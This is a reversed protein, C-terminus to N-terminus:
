RAASFKAEAYRLFADPGPDSGTAARILEAPRLRRGHRHVKERLWDRLPVLEGRGIAADLDGLDAAAKEHLQAAYLNGLTYTPFYGFAGMAWHIDQLVGEADNTPRIGLLRQMGDNWAAPLDAIALTGAFLDRELEFRLVVHLNYTLEDAEVRIPSPTVHNVARVMADLQVDDFTGPAARKLVPLFHSWFPRSRAVMNEWLRSQSEHVGLSAADGLPTRQWHGPLGQEYLGHGAEHVIGFFAPRLDAADSRWTLRVDGGHIGTCFPHTSADLRGSDLDFGMARVVALAFEKQTDPAVARRVPGLAADSPAAAAAVLPVLRERLGEFLPALRSVTAGPEYEDLLADLPAEAYGVAEAFRRKLDLLRTLHPAFDSFRNDARAQQWCVLARSEAEALETVLARPVRVARDHDRKAERVMARADDDLADSAAPEALAALAAGVQHSTLRDHAIGALTALVQSRGEIGLKPMYAEQDWGLLAAASNVDHIEKWADLLRELHERANM